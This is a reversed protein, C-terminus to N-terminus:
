PMVGGGNVHLTQGTTYSAGDGLLFAVAPAVEEPTGFRRMALRHTKLRHYEESMHASTMASIIPGPAVANVRIAPTLDHAAARTLGVIGAKSACYAAADSGGAYAMQSAINVVSARESGRLHRTFARLCRYTGTLNVDITRSWTAEDLDELSASEMVGANNVLGDVQGHQSAADAFTEVSAPDTVDLPLAVASRGDGTAGSGAESMEGALLQGTELESPHCGLVVRAGRDVLHRAIETGIAGTAGTVAVRLGTVASM